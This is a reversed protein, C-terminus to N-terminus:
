CGVQLRQEIGGRAEVVRELRAAYANEGGVAAMKSQLQWLRSAAVCPLTLNDRPVVLHILARQQATCRRSSPANRPLAACRALMLVDEVSGDVLENIRAELETHQSSSRPTRPPAFISTDALACALCPRHHKIAVPDLLAPRWTSRTPWIHLRRLWVAACTCM